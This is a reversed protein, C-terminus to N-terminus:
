YGMCTGQNEASQAAHQQQAENAACRNARAMRISRNCRRRFFRPGQLRPLRRRSKNHLTEYAENLEKFKREGEEKDTAVDPHHKRALKRYSKRIENESADRAVGLLGSPFAIPYVCFRQIASM